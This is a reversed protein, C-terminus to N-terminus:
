WRNCLKIGNPGTRWTPTEEVSCNACIAATSALTKKVPHIVKPPETPTDETLIITTSTWMNNASNFNNKMSAVSM